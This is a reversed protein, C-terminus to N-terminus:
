PITFTLRYRSLKLAPDDYAGQYVAGRRGVEFNYLSADPFRVRFEFSCAADHQTGRRLATRALTSGNVDRVVVRTGRRVDGYLDAGVCSPGDDSSWHRQSALVLEGTVRTREKGELARSADADAVFGVTCIVALVTLANVAYRARGV